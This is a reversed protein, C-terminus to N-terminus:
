DRVGLLIRAGVLGQYSVPEGDYEVRMEDGSSGRFSSSVDSGGVYFFARGSLFVRLAFPGFSGVDTELALQPGVAHLIDSSSGNIFVAPAFPGGGCGTQGGGPCSVNVLSGILKVRQGVYDISPKVFVKTDFLEVPVSIGIGAAWQQEFKVEGRSGQGGVVEPGANAFLPNPVTLNGTPNADRAVDRDNATTFQYESHVFVQFEWAGLKPSALQVGIPIIPMVLTNEDETLGRLASDVSGDSRQTQGGLGVSISAEFGGLPVREDAVVASTLVCTCVCVVVATARNITRFISM